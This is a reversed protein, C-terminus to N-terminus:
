ETVVLVEGSASMWSWVTQLDKIDSASIKGDGYAVRGYLRCLARMSENNEVREAAVSEVFEQPTQDARRPQGRDAAWAEFAEFTYRVLEAPPVKRYTDGAFPNRFDRFRKRPSLPAASENESPSDTTERGFLRALFAKLDRWMDRAAALLEQRYKWLLFACVLALVVYFLWKILGAIGGAINSMTEAINQPPQAAHEPPQVSQPESSPDGEADPSEESNEASQSPERNEQQENAQSVREGNSNEEPSRSAQEGPTGGQDSDQSPDQESREGSDSEGGSQGQEGSQDPKTHEGRDSQQTGEESSEGPPRGTQDDSTTDGTPANQDTTTVSETSPEEGEAGDTGRGYRSSTLGDPSKAQWPAQALSFEASPRPLLTTVLLVIATVVAGVAVWTMAMPNPMDVGRQRLYRRFGLFSTTVLLLLGSAVYVFLLVFVYRRSATDSAPIFGQGIGFIPLAALSFYLVWLGPAHPGTEFSFMRQWFNPLSEGPLLQNRQPPALATDGETDDVGALQMLGEGSADVSDDILTCDWTLRHACWWVVAILVINILPSFVSPHEVFKQLVVFTALALPVSYMAARESGMEISIRGVLVTAFVFLAFVYNLRAQYEGVYVVELLFFVLSGVLLMILAPSVAIALYDASTMYLRKTM